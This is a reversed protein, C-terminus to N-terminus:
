AAEDPDHDDDEDSPIPDPNAPAAEDPAPDALGRALADTAIDDSVNAEVGPPYSKNLLDDRLTVNPIIRM